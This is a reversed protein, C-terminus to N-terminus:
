LALAAEGYGGRRTGYTTLLLEAVAVAATAVAVAVAAAAVAAAVAVAVASRCCCSHRCRCRCCGPSFSCSFSSLVCVPLYACLRTRVCTPACVLPHACCMRAPTCSAHPSSCALTSNTNCQIVAKMLLINTKHGIVCYPGTVNLHFLYDCFL